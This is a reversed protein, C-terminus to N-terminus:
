CMCLSYELDKNIVFAQLPKHECMEAFEYHLSKYGLMTSQVKEIVIFLKNRFQYKITYICTHVYSVLNGGHNTTWQIWILNM